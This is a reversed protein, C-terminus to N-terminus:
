LITKRLYGYLSGRMGREKVIDINLVAIAVIIQYASPKKYIYSYRIRHGKLSIAMEAMKM